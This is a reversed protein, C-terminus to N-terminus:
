RSSRGLEDPMWSSLAGELAPCARQWSAVLAAPTEGRGSALANVLANPPIPPGARLADALLAGLPHPDFRLDTLALSAWSASTTPPGRRAPRPLSGALTSAIYDAVGEEAASRLREVALARKSTSARREQVAVHVLEHIWIARARIPEDVLVGGAHTEIRDLPAADVITPRWHVNVSTPAARGLDTMARRAARFVEGVDGDTCSAVRGPELAEGQLRSGVFVSVRDDSWGREPCDAPRCAAVVFLLFVPRM